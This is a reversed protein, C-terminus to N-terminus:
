LTVLSLSSQLNSLIHVFVNGEYTFQSKSDHNKYLSIDKVPTCIHFAKKYAKIWSINMWKCNWFFMVIHSELFYLKNMIVIKKLIINHPRMWLSYHSKCSIFGEAVNIRYSFIALKFLSLDIRTRNDASLLWPLSSKLVHNVIRISSDKNNSILFAEDINVILIMYSYM